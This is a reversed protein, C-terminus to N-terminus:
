LGNQKCKDIHNLDIKDLDKHYLILTKTNTEIKEYDNFIAMNFTIEDDKIEYEDEWDLYLDNIKSVNKDKHVYWEQICIIDINHLRIWNYLDIRKTPSSVLGRVNICAIKLGRQLPNKNKKSKKKKKKKRKYDM